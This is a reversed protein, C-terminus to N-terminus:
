LFFIVFFKGLSYWNTLPSFFIMPSSFNTAGRVSLAKGFIFNANVFIVKRRAGTMWGGDWKWIDFIIQCNSWCFYFFVLCSLRLSVIACIISGWKGCGKNFSIIFLNLILFLFVFISSKLFFLCLLSPEGRGSGIMWRAM